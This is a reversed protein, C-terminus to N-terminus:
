KNRNIELGKARLRRAFNCFFKSIRLNKKGYFKM